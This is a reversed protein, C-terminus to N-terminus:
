LDGEAMPRPIQSVIMRVQHADRMHAALADGSKPRACLPCYGPETQRRRWRARETTSPQVRRTPECSLAGRDRACQDGCYRPFGEGAGDLFGGCGECLTGDLMMEAIEGPM